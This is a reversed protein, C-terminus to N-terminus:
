GRRIMATVTQTSDKGASARRQTSPRGHQASDRQTQEIAHQRAAITRRAAITTTALALQLEVEEAIDDSPEQM